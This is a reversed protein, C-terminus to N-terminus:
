KVASADNNYDVIQWVGEANRKLKYYDYGGGDVQNSRKWEGGDEQVWLNEETIIVTGDADQKVGDRSYKLKVGVLGMNYLPAMHEQLLSQYKEEGLAERGIHTHARPYNDSEFPATQQEDALFQLEENIQDETLVILEGTFTSYFDELALM